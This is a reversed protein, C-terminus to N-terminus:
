CYKEILAALATLDIPKGAYGVAGLSAAEERLEDAASLVVVPIERLRPDALLERRLERGNMGPMNLDLLLLCPLPASRMYELAEAGGGATDVRFGEEQLVAALEARIDPDDEVILLPGHISAADPNSM